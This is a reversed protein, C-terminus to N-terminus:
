CLAVELDTAKRVIYISAIAKGEYLSTHWAKIYPSNSHVLVAPYDSSNLISQNTSCDFWTAVVKGVFSEGDWNSTTNFVYWGCEVEGLKLTAKERLNKEL